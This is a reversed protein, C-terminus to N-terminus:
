QSGRHSCVNQEVNRFIRESSSIGLGQCGEGVIFAYSFDEAVASVAACVSAYSSCFKKRRATMALRLLFNRKGTVICRLVPRVPFLDFLEFVAVEVVVVGFNKIMGSVSM